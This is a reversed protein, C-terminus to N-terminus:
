KYYPSKYGAKEYGVWAKGPNDEKWKNKFMKQHSYERDSQDMSAARHIHADPGQPGLLPAEDLSEYMDPYEYNMDDEYGSSNYTSQEAGISNYVSALEESAKVIASIQWRQLMAGEELLKIINNAAYCAIELEKLTMDDAPYSEQGERLIDKFRKM